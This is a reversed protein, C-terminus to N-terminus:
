APQIASRSRGDQIPRASGTGQKRQGYDLWRCQDRKMQLIVLPSGDWAVFPLHAVPDFGLKTALNLSELNSMAVLVTVVEVGLQLFPYAFLDFLTRRDAWASGSVAAISAEVHFGNCREYTVGAVIRGGKVVGLSKADPTVTYNPIQRGVWRAIEQDAGYIVAGRKLFRPSSDPGHNGGM